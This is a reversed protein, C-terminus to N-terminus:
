KQLIFDSFSLFGEEMRRPIKFTQGTNPDQRTKRPRSELTRQSYSAYPTRWVKMDESEIERLKSDLVAHEQETIDSGLGARIADIHSRDLNQNNLVGSVYQTNDRYPDIKIGAERKTQLRAFHTRIAHHIVEPNTANAGALQTLRPNGTQNISRMAHEDTFSPHNVITNEPDSVGPFIHYYANPNRLRYQQYNDLIMSIHHPKLIPNRMLGYAKAVEVNHQERDGSDPSFHKGSLVDTIEEETIHPSNAFASNAIQVRSGESIPRGRKRDLDKGIDLHNDSSLLRDVHERTHNPHKFIETVRSTDYSDFPFTDLYKDIHKATVHPSKSAILDHKASLMIGGHSGVHRYDHLDFIRDVQDATLFRNKAAENAMVGFSHLLRKHKKKLGKADAERMNAYTKNPDTSVAPSSEVKSLVHEIDDPGLYTSKSFKDILTPDVKGRRIVHKIFDPHAFPTEAIPSPHNRDVISSLHKGVLDHVADIFASRKTAREEILGLNHENGIRRLREPYYIAHRAGKQKERKFAKLEKSYAVKLQMPTVDKFKEQLNARSRNIPDPDYEDTYRDEDVDADQPDAFAAPDMSAYIDYVMKSTGSLLSSTQKIIHKSEEEPIPYNKHTVIGQDKYGHARVVKGGQAYLLFGHGQSYHRLLEPSRRVCITADKPCYKEITKSLRKYEFDSNGSNQSVRDPTIHYVHIPLTKDIRRTATKDHPMITGIKYNSMESIEPNGKVPPEIIEFSPDTTELRSFLSGLTAPTHRELDGKSMHGKSIAKRVMGMHARMTEEDENPRYNGSLLHTTLYSNEIHDSGIGHASAIRKRAEEPDSAVLYHDKHHNMYRNVFQDVKAELLIEENLISVFSVLWSENAQETTQPIASSHYMQPMAIWHPLYLGRPFIGNKRQDILGEVTPAKEQQERPQFQAEAAIDYSSNHKLAEEIPIAHSTKAFSRVMYSPHRFLERATSESIAPHQAAMHFIPESAKMPASDHHKIMYPSFLLQKIHDDNINPQHSFLTILKEASDGEKETMSLRGGYYHTRTSAAKEYEAPNTEQLDKAKQLRDLHLDIHKTILEPSMVTGQYMGDILEDETGRNLSYAHRRDLMHSNVGGPQFDPDRRASDVTHGHAELDQRTRQDHDTMMEYMRQIHDAKIPSEGIRFRRQGGRPSYKTADLLSSFASGTNYHADTSAQPNKMVSEIHDLISHTHSSDINRNSLIANTELGTFANNQGNEFMKKRHDILAHLDEASTNPNRAASHMFSSLFSRYYEQDHIFSSEGLHRVMNHAEIFSLGHPQQAAALATGLHDSKARAAGGIRDRIASDTKKAKDLHTKIIELIDNPDSILSIADKMRYQIEPQDTFSVPSDDGMNVVKRGFGMMMDHLHKGVKSLTQKPILNAHPSRRRHFEEGQEDPFQDMDDHQEKAARFMRFYTSLDSLIHSNKEMRLEHPLTEPLETIPGDPGGSVKTKIENERKKVVDDIVSKFDEYSYPKAETPAYRLDYQLRKAFPLLKRVQNHISDSIDRPPPDNYTDVIGRHDGDGAGLILEPVSNLKKRDRHTFFFYGSNTSYNELHEGSSITCMRQGEPRGPIVPCHDSKIKSIRDYELRRQYPAPFKKIMDSNSVHHVDITGLEPHEVTGIHYDELGPLPNKDPISLHSALQARSFDSMKPPPPLKSGSKIKDKHKQSFKRWAGLDSRMMSDDKEPDYEGDLLSRTLYIAEDHSQTHPHAAAILKRAEEPSSQVKPHNAHLKIYRNVFDEVGEVIFSIEETLHQTFTLM